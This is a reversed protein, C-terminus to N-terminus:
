RNLKALKNIPLNSLLALGHRQDLGGDLLQSDAVVDMEGRSPRTVRKHEIGELDAVLLLEIDDSM